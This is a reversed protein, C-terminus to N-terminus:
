FFADDNEIKICNGVPENTLVDFTPITVTSRVKGLSIVPRIRLGGYPYPM